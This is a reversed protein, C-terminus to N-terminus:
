GARATNSCAQVVFARMAQMAAVVKQAAAPQLDLCAGPVLEVLSDFHADNISLNCSDFSLQRPDEVVRATMVECIRALCMPLASNECVVRNSASANFAMQLRLMFSTWAVRDVSRTHSALDSLSRNLRILDWHDSMAFQLLLVEDTSWCSEVLAQRACDMLEGLEVLSMSPVELPVPSIAKAESKLYRILHVKIPEPETLESPAKAGLSSHRAIMSSLAHAYGASREPCEAEAAVKSRWAATNQKRAFTCGARYGATVKSRLGRFRRVAEQAAEPRVGLGSIAQGFHDVLADFIADSFDWPRHSDGLRDLVQQERGQGPVTEFFATVEQVYLGRLTPISAASKRLMVGVSTATIATDFMKEIAARLVSPGGIRELLSTSDGKVSSEEMDVPKATSTTSGGAGFDRSMKMTRGRRSPPSAVLGVGLGETGLVQAINWRSEPKLLLMHSVTKGLGEIGTDPTSAWLSELRDIDHKRQEPDQPHQPVWGLCKEISYPGCAMEVFNLAVSWVDAAFPNYNKGRGASARLVEPACFPLSGCCATLRQDKSCLMVAFGFDVLRLIHGVDSVIFNAPKLDRHCVMLSHLHSLAVAMQCCFSRALDRPLASSGEAALTTRVFKHLSMGGAYDMVLYICNSTHFAHMASAVNGHTPVHQMIGLEQNLSFLQSVNKVSAKQIVKVAVVGQDKHHAKFVTGFSGGGLKAEFAYGGVGGLGGPERAPWETVSADESPICELVAGPLTWMQNKWAVQLKRSALEKVEEVKKAAQQQISDIEQSLRRALIEIRHVAELVRHGALREYADVLIVDDAGNSIFAEQAKHQLESLRCRAGLAGTAQTKEVPAIVVVLISPVKPNRSLSRAMEVTRQDVRLGVQTILLGKAEPQDPKEWFDAAFNTSTVVSMFGLAHLAPSGIEPQTLVCCFESSIQGLGRLVDTLIRPMEESSIEPPEADPDGPQQGV